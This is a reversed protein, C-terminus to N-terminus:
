ILVIVGQVQYDSSNRKVKNEDLYAKFTNIRM